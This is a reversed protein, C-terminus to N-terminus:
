YETGPPVPIMTSSPSTTPLTRKPAEAHLHPRRSTTSNVQTSSLWIFDHKTFSPRNSIHLSDLSEKKDDLNCRCVIAELEGKGLSRGGHM